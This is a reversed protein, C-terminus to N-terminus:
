TRWLANMIDECMYVIEHNGMHEAALVANCIAITEKVTKAKVWVKGNVGVAIEHPLERGLIKLLPCSPRLIKRVLNISCGFAFGEPSLTGLRGAKGYSDVCVLEPEMDRSATVLRAFVLDGVNVDPRLKKTAGEFALYSLSALDSAGIDVKFVEGGKNTVVGVVTEGRTPVYRKKHSDVWYVLQKNKLVGSTTVIVDDVSFRLGPGLIARAKEDDSSIGQVKDGPLVVDGVNVEM